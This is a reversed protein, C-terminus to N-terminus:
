GNIMQKPIYSKIEDSVAFFLCGYKYNTKYTKLCEYCHNCKENSFILHGDILDVAYASQPCNTLCLGCGVCNCAKLMLAIVIKKAEKNKWLLKMKFKNQNLDFLEIKINNMKGNIIIKNPYEEINGIIKSFEKIRNLHLKPVISLVGFYDDIAIESTKCFCTINRKPYRMKWRRKEVWGETKGIKNAYKKLIKYLQSAKEPYFYSLLGESKRSILPCAWCGVRNWGMSYLPNFRLDNSLIYLWIDMDTWDIIPFYNTRERIFTSLGTTTRHYSARRASESKRIGMINILGDYGRKKLDLSYKLIPIVRYFKCCWRAYYSPFGFIEIMDWFDVTKEIIKIPWKDNKILVNLYDMTEPLITPDELYLFSFDNELKHSISNYLHSSVLSDKGGSFDVIIYKRKDINMLYKEMENVTIQTKRGIYDENAQILKEISSLRIDEEPIKLSIEWGKKNNFRFQGIVEGMSYIWQNCSFLIGNTPINLNSVNNIFSIEDPFMPIIKSNSFKEPIKGCLHCAGEELIPSNCRKCWYM